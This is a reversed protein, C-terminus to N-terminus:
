YSRCQLFRVTRESGAPPQLQLRSARLSDYRNLVTCVEQVHVQEVDERQQVVLTSSTSWLVREVWPLASIAHIVEGREFQERNPDAPAAATLARDAAPLTTAPTGTAPRQASVPAVVAESEPKGQMLAPVFGALLGLVAAGGWAMAIERVSRKRANATLDERLSSPLMQSVLAWLATGDYLDLDGALKRTSADINAPTALIGGAAGTLRVAEALERVSAAALRSRAGAQKCALLWTRGERALRIEAQPGSELTKEVSEAVFGRAHLAEIVLRSFERWRMAALAEIGARTEAQRQRVLWLYATALAGSLVVVVTAIM